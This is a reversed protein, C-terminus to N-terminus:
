KNGFRPVSNYVMNQNVLSNCAHLVRFYMLIGLAM